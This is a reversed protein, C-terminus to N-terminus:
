FYSQQQEINQLILTQYYVRAQQITQAIQKM